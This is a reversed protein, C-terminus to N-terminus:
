CLQMMHQLESVPLANSDATPQCSYQGGKPPPVLALAIKRRLLYFLWVLSHLVILLLCAAGVALLALGPRQWDLLPYIKSDGQRNTGGCLYYVATFGSYGIAFLVLQYLHLLRVPHSAVALDIVVLLSNVIHNHVNVFDLSFIEAFLLSALKSSAQCFQLLKM